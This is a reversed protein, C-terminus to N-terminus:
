LWGSIETLPQRRLEREKERDRQKLKGLWNKKNNMPITGFKEVSEDKEVQDGL